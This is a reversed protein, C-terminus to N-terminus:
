RTPLPPPPLLNEIGTSPSPAAHTQNPASLRNQQQMSKIQMGEIVQSSVGHKHLTIIDAVSLQGQVGVIEVQRLILTQSVGSHMMSMVDDLSLPGIHRRTESSPQRTYDFIKGNPAVHPNALYSRAHPSNYPQSYAPLAYAQPAYHRTPINRHYEAERNRFGTSGPQYSQRYMPYEPRYGPVESGHIDSRFRMEQEIRQDKQNGIAGGAIAGAAAGILAGATENNGKDGIAVGLAAGALGGLIIGRRRHSRNQASVETTMAVILLLGFFFRHKVTFLM